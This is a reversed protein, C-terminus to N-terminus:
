PALVLQGQRVVFVSVKDPWSGESTFSINGLAGEYNTEQLQQRVSVRDGNSRSIARALLYVSDYGWAYYIPMDAPRHFKATYLLKVKELKANQPTAIMTQYVGEISEPAQKIVDDNLNDSTIVKGRYGLARLQRFFVSLHSSIPAYVVDPKSRVLKLLLTRYDSENTSAVAEAVVVGGSRKFIDVFGNKVLISWEQENAIVAATKAGLRERAYNAAVEYTSPLWPGIGFAFDGIDDIEPSSDWLTVSPLKAREL